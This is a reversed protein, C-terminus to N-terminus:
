SQVGAHFNYKNNKGKLYDVRFHSRSSFQIFFQSVRMDNLVWLVKKQPDAFSLNILICKSSAEM